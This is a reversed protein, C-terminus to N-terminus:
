ICTGGRYTSNEDQEFHQGSMKLQHENTEWFHLHICYGCSYFGPFAANM